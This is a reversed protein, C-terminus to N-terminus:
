QQKLLILCQRINNKAKEHNPDIALVKRWEAIADQFRNNSYFNIGRFYFERVRAEQDPTLTRARAATGGTGIRLESEIRNAAVLARTNEPDRELVWQYQALASRINAAGGRRYLDAASELRAAIEQPSATLQVAGTRRQETKVSAILRDIQPYDPAIAKLLEYRRLAERPNKKEIFAKADAVLSEAFTNFKEPDTKLQCRALYQTAILNKPFLNLIKEWNEQSERYKGMDYLLKGNTILSTVLDYYPSTQDVMEEQQQQLAEKTTNLFRLATANNPDLQLTKEFSALALSYQAQSFFVLGNQFERDIEQLRLRRQREEYRSRLASMGDIRSRVDKYDPILAATNKFDDLAADFNNANLNALGSVYFQEAQLRRKEANEQEFIIKEIRGISDLAERNKPDIAIVQRYEAISDPFKQQEFLLRAAILLSRIREFKNRNEVALEAKRLEERAYADQPMIGLTKKWYGIAEEYKEESMLNRAITIFENYQRIKEESIRKKELEADLDSQLLRMQERLRQLSPDNPDIRYAVVFNDIATKTKDIADTIMEDRKKGKTGSERTQPSLEPYTTEILIRNLRKINDLEQETLEDRKRNRYFSTWRVLNATEEDTEIAPNRVKWLEYFNPIALLENLREITNDPTIFRIGRFGYNDTRIAAALAPVSLNARKFEGEYFENSGSRLKEITSRAEWYFIKSSQLSIDKRHKEDYLSEIRLQIRENGPDLELAVLWENLSDSFKKESYLKEARDMIAAVEPRVSQASPISFAVAAILVLATRRGRM